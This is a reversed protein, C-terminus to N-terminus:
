VIKDARLRDRQEDSLGLIGGYVYDNDAGLDRGTHEICGPTKTLRPVPAQLRITGLDADPVPVYTNRAKLHPDGLIMEADYVPAAAVQEREFIEMVDTLTRQAIWDAVVADVLGANALRQQPEVFHPDACLDPRGIAQFVRVAVTPASGSVAVWKGDKTQYTNRPASIDWRNGSRSQIVGLQDYVLVSQELLRALPEVLNLDILQGKGSGHDREYLAALVAYTGTLAAVGDALMFSPLTPPGDALGTTHAFGSMAEGLTGFGPRDSYPGGAGFGTVHLMVLGENDKAVKDYTLGWKALTHPRANFIIIDCKAALKRLLVQGTPNRMDLTATKKNRGISKWMLGIGSKQSGWQRIPDGSYPQEIKIVEAGLEALYTGVLPGAALSAAEIVRLGELAATM